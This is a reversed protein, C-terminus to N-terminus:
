GWPIRNWSRALSSHNKSFVLNTKQSFVRFARWNRTRVPEMFKRLRNLSSERRDWIKSARERSRLNINRLPPERHLHHPQTILKQPPSQGPHSKAIVEKISVRSIATSTLCNIRKSWDERGVQKICSAWHPTMTELNIPSIWRIFLRRCTILIVRPKIPAWSLDPILRWPTLILQEATKISSLTLRNRHTM